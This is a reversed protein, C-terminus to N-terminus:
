AQLAEALRFHAILGIEDIAVTLEESRDNGVRRHLAELVAHASRDRVCVVFPFGFRERYRRNAEDFAAIQQPTLLGLGAREQERASARTLRGERALRGALDPHARVLAVRREEPAEEVVALMAAHLADVTAFPRRRWAARAIWPSDEFAFGVAAVFDECGAANLQEITM